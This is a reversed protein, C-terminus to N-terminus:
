ITQNKYIKKLKKLEELKSDKEISLRGIEADAWNMYKSKNSFNFILIVGFLVGFFILIWSQNFGSNIMFISFPGLVLTGVIRETKANKKEDILELYENKYSKYVERKNKIDIELQEYDSLSMLGRNLRKKNLEEKLNQLEDEENLQDLKVKLNDIESTIESEVRSSNTINNIEEDNKYKENKSNFINAFIFFIVYVFIFQLALDLYNQSYSSYNVIFASIGFMLFLWGLVSTPIYKM